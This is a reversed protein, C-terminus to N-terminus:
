QSLCLNQHFIGAEAGWLWPEVYSRRGTHLLVLEFHLNKLFAMAIYLGARRAPIDRGTEAQYSRIFINRAEATSQFTSNKFFGFAASQALFWGIDSEPEREAFKDMDIATIRERGAILINAPHFDGHCPAREAASRGLERRV